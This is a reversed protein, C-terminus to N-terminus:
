RGRSATRVADLSPKPSGDAYRVGSQLGELRTEDDVHFFCIMRVTPQGRALEIAQRYYAAQTEPAIAPVVERGTYLSAKDPPVKTEVGYEGYVIPLDSGAQASGDFAAGLLAVLRPYDAIGISTTHPHTLSPPIRPNEGYVHISFADMLPRTRGSARYAAGLDRIFATPSHTQRSATADDGGRPALGGGIVEPPSPLSKLADYTAALLAEYSGAATDSGDVGFQPQWFLNLNPENGVIVQRM